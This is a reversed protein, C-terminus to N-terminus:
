MAFNMIFAEKPLTVDFTVEQATDWKNRVLSVMTTTAFRYRIDAMVHFSDVAQCLFLSFHFFTCM